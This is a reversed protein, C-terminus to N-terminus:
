TRYTLHKWKMDEWCGIVCPTLCLAAYACAAAAALPGGEGLSVSPYYRAALAGARVCCVVCGACLACWCLMAADRRELRYTSFATRGPLGYGRGKMSDATELANELSWTILISLVVAGHRLRSVAGRGAGRGICKQAEAVAAAQARFRPIFRLSMSLVLSLAPAVRGFLYVIKDSTMVESVSVFWLLVAGLMAGSALGYCISELTLPNGSPLYCLVSVGEHSFAPNAAAAFLMSFLAAAGGRRLARVGGLRVRLAAAGALSIGLCVPHMLTMGLGLVLAFYCLGVLPHYRSFADDSPM